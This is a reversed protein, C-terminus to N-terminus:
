EGAVLVRKARQLEHEATKSALREHTAASAVVTAQILGTRGDSMILPRTLEPCM